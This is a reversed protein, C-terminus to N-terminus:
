RVLDQAELVVKQSLKQGYVSLNLSFGKDTVNSGTQCIVSNPLVKRLAANFLHIATHNRMVNIRKESNVLLQVSNDNRIYLNDSNKLLFQGRHFIIDRIKFVSDIKFQIHSNFVMCGDDAIQGGEECYFNTNETVIYYPKNETPESFDIWEGDENLIAIVKTRLPKLIIENENEMYNYKEQDNTKKVGSKHLIEIAKDFMIGKNSAQEKFATKHRSKHNSLLKWFGKRDIELNNLNAIREIVDDQLGHTDYLKFVLEGPIVTSKAKSM